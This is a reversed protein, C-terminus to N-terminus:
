PRSLRSQRMRQLWAKSRQVRAWVTPSKKIRRKLHAQVVLTLAAVRGKLTFGLFSDFLPEQLKCFTEKYRAEGIGLDFSNYGQTSLRKIVGSVLLEGPSCRAFEPRPDFGLVMGSFHGRHTTGGFLAVLEPGCSLAHFEMAAPADFRGARRLFAVQAESPPPAGTTGARKQKWAGYRDLLLDLEAESRATHHVVPGLLQLRTEKQRLLKRAHKSLPITAPQRADRLKTVHNASPSPQHPLARMPNPQTDWTEPQNRLVFVDIAELRAAHALLKTLSARDWRPADRFLGLNSNSDRGGLFQAHRLAGNASVVLPLLAVADGADDRAVVILPTVGQDAGVTACWAEAWAITQYPSCPTADQLRQWDSAVDALSRFICISAFLDVRSRARAGPPHM